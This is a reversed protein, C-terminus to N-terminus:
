QVTLTFTSTQVTSGSTATVTVTSTGTPTGPDTTGGGGGSGSSGGGGCALAALLLTVTLMSFLFTRRRRLPVGFAFVLGIALFGTSSWALLSTSGAHLSATKPATTAVTITTTGTGPLTAPSFTCSSELPLGSCAFSITSTFAPGGTVALSTTGSSGRTVTIPDLSTDLAFNSVTITVASSTSGSFTTDGAYQATTSNTGATTLASTTLTATASSGNAVLTGTGLSASGNFFTVTGTPASAGSAPTVTATLTVSDGALISTLSAGLSTTTGLQTVTVTIASSTSAGFAADGGYQATLSGAGAPLATTSLSATATSGNAALTSTGLSTTGNFFTVTGTPATTGSAPAVTATLTVSQGVTISSVNAVLTTTTTIAAAVTVTVANSTSGQYNTDGAYTFTVSNAGVPMQTTDLSATSQLNGTTGNVGAVLTASGLNTSGAFFTVTGGPATATTLVATDLTATLTVKAGAAISSASSAIAATTAAKDITFSEAPSTTAKFSLDGSYTSVIPHSGGSFTYVPTPTFAYGESNLSYPSAGVTGGNDTFTVTGSPFGQQSQGAVDARLYVPTGYVGENFTILQGSADTTFVSVASNSDEATVTVFTALSDSPAFTGDGAYHAKVRYSSGGPLRSTSDAISGNSLTFNQIATSTTPTSFALLSVDGTPTGAGGDAPAVTVTFPVSTGHVINVDNGDMMTLTIASPTFTVDNWHNVLNNVNVSGLGTALDYGVTAPYCPDGSAVTCDPQGPVVINGVTTDNFICTPDPLGGTNSGNCIGLNANQTAALPYIVQNAQGQRSDTFQNVLAMVAAFAPSSVSTGSVFFFSFDGTASDACSAQVCVLYPDHAAATLSVDPIVRMTGDPIGTVGTQWAPRAYATSIGGGGARINPDVDPPCAGAACSENWVNEPIYSKASANTGTATPDWYTDDQGNENFITGGVAITFPTAALASVAIPGTAVTQNFPDDCGAAGSDGSAVMFSIGQAAAQEALASTDSLEQATLNQECTGFSETMVGALNNDIIYQESLDIGDTTNTTASVVFSIDSQPAVAAAWTLDTVAEIEEGSGLNGPDPGNLVVAYNRPNPIPIKFVRYFDDIDTLNINSRGVVAISTGQGRVGNDYLPTVNYITAFDDPGIGHGGGTLNVYPRKSGPIAQAHARVPSVHIQPKKQFNHLSHVGAVVPTLSAPIRPDDANAWHESGNVSYRHISTHFAHQVQAATGSFEISQRGNAVRNVTFGHSQLWTTIRDLDQRSPGFQEGFQRPTLWQHFKGSSRRHLDKLLRDLAKQQEPSRKLRLLMREMPLDPPAGGIDFVPKAWPHLNGKITTLINEDIPAVIRSPVAFTAAGQAHAASGPSASVAATSAIGPSASSIRLAASSTFLGLLATWFLASYLTRM